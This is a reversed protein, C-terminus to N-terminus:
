RIGRLRDSERHISFDFRPIGRDGWTVYGSGDKAVLQHDGRHGKPLNCGFVDFSPDPESLNGCLDSMRSGERIQVLRREFPSRRRRASTGRALRSDAATGRGVARRPIAAVSRRRGRVFRARRRDARSETRAAERALVSPLDVGSECGEARGDERPRLPLASREHTPRESTYMPRM